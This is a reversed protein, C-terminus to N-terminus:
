LKSAAAEDILVIVNEHLHLVSAPLNPRIDDKVLKSIIDAKGQGSAMLIIKKSRMITKIGMSIAKKPVDEVSDFFRKNAEITEEDLSVIHTKAEFEVNPENFGIHGNHGIGLIQLDIGGAKVIDSEYNLCEQEFDDSIGNPIHIHDENVNVHNFLNERMFHYYSQENSKELGLYEDLNFTVVDEFNIEGKKFLDILVKYTGVPTSGTALGLVSDPSWMLQSQILGAATKSLAEYDKVVIVNM